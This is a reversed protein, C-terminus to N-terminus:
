GRYAPLPEVGGGMEGFNALQSAPQSASGSPTPPLPEGGGGRPSGLNNDDPNRYCCFASM